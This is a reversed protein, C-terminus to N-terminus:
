KVAGATLGGVIYKQLFLFLAVVPLAAIVAGASFASWDAYRPNSVLKTLGVALTQVDTDILLVSAVVYENVSAIFSLLAVVALIPAVLPLIITFFVRAHGAGDIKAAEDISQPITNFFGYMLYTNVGLAGGLYVLILGIRTNLGIAPFWDSIASMLLFIAVVALLQPFMQVVVIAILGFRRGAFRMRSFAYAALGGLFVTAVATIGAIILTNGFWAVFPVKPDSLIRVYSDIGIKSFLANSGTLTGNPNLSSSIVFVIPLLSFAVMVVGVLHRWGTDAFWRGFGRRRPAYAGRSGGTIAVTDLSATM